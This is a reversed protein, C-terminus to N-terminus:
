QHPCLPIRGKEGVRRKEPPPALRARPPAAPRAAFAGAGAEAVLPLVAAYPAVDREWLAEQLELRELPLAAQAVRVDLGAAEGEARLALASQKLLFAYVGPDTGAELREGVQFLEVSGAFRRAADRIWDIWAELSGALAPGPLAGGPLHAPHEPVLVLAARWGAARAREIAAAVATFDRSGPAPEVAAWSVRILALPGDPKKAAEADDAEGLGPPEVVAGLATVEDPELTMGLAPSSAETAPAAAGLTATAGASAGALALALLARWGPHARVRRSRSRSPRSSM